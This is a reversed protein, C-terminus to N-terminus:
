NEAEDWDNGEGNENRRRREALLHRNNIETNRHEFNGCIQGVVSRIHHCYRDVTWGSRFSFNLPVREAQNHSWCSDDRVCHACTREDPHVWRSRSQMTQLQSLDILDRLDDNVTDYNM